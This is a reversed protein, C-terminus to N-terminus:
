NFSAQFIGMSICGQKDKVPTIMDKIDQRIDIIENDSATVRRESRQQIHQEVIRVSLDQGIIMNEPHQLEVWNDLYGVRM